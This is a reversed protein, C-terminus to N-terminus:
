IWPNPPELGEQHGWPRPQSLPSLAPPAPFEVPPHPPISVEPTVVPLAPCLLPPVGPWTGTGPPGHGSQPTGAAVGTGTGTGEGLDRRLDAALGPQHLFGLVHHIEVLVVEGDDERGHPHTPSPTPCRPHRWCQGTGTDGHGRHGRTGGTDGCTFMSVALNKLDSKSCFPDMSFTHRNRLRALSGM